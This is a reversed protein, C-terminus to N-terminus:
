ELENANYYADLDYQQLRLYTLDRQLQRYFVLLADRRYAHSWMTPAALQPLYVADNSVTAMLPDIWLAGQELVCIGDVIQSRDHTHGDVQGHAFEGIHEVLVSPSTGDFAFMYALIPLAEPVIIAAPGKRYELSGTRKMSKLRSIKTLSDCLERKDLYSKVEITALVSEALFLGEDESGLDILPFRTDVIVCDQQTSRTGTSDVVVGARIEFDKPLHPRLFEKVVCERLRGTTASHGSGAAIRAASKLHEAIRRFHDRIENM